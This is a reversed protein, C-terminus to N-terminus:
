GCSSHVPIPGSFAFLMNIYRNLVGTKLLLIAWFSRGSSQVATVWGIYTYTYANIPVRHKKRLFYNLLVLSFLKRLLDWVLNLLNLFLSDNKEFLCQRESQYIHYWVQLMFYKKLSGICKQRLNPFNQLHWLDVNYTRWCELLRWWLYLSLKEDVCYWCTNRLFWYYLTDYCYSSWCCFILNCIM